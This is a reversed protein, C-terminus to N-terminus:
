ELQRRKAARNLEPTSATSFGRKREGFSGGRQRIKRKIATFPTTPTEGKASVGVNTSSGAAHAANQPRNGV